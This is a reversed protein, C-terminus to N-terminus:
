VGVSCRAHLAVVDVPVGAPPVGVILAVIKWFFGPKIDVFIHRARGM